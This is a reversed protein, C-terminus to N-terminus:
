PAALERISKGTLAAELDLADGGIRCGHCRWRPKGDRGIFVSLSPTSDPHFPCQAMGRRVAVGHRALVDRPSGLRERAREIPSPGGFQGMARSRRRPVRGRQMTSRRRSGDKSSPAAWEDETPVPDTMNSWDRDLAQDSHM